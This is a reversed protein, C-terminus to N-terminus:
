AVIGEPALGVRALWGFTAEDSSGRRYELGIWGRYDADALAGWLADWDIRGSGPPLRGPADAIQVHSIRPGFSRVADAPNGGTMAVHYLDLLLGVNGGRGKSAAVLARAQDQSHLGYDPFDHPNLAEVLFVVGAAAPLGSALELNDLATAWAEPALPPEPVNGYLANILRCGTRSAVDLAVDLGDRFRERAGPLALFGHEGATADGDDLNLAVLSVGAAELSAVFADVDSGSPTPGAFPWWTEVATFDPVRRPPPVSLAPCTM